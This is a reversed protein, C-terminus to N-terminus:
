RCATCKKHIYFYWWLIVSIILLILNIIISIFKINRQKKYNGKSKSGYAGAGAGAFALPIALCAGCFPEVIDDKNKKFQNSQKM